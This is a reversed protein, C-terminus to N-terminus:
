APEGGKHGRRARGLLLVAALAAFLLISVAEVALWYDGFLVAGVAGPAATAAPLPTLGAPDRILLTFLAVLSAGVLVGPAALRTAPVSGQGVPLGLLMIIFLFLVMIAGAYVVVQLAGPLPAGLVTFVGASALFAVVACCVAHIPNRRTAALGAAALMVASLLYFLAGLATM